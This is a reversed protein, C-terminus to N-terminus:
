KNSKMLKKREYYKKCSEKHKQRFAEDNKYRQKYRENISKKMDLDFIDVIMEKFHELIQLQEEDEFDNFLDVYEKIDSNM